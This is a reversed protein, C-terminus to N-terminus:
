SNIWPLASGVTDTYLSLHWSNVLKQKIIYIGLDPLLAFWIIIVQWNLGYFSIDKKMKHKQVTSFDFLYTKIAKINALWLIFNVLWPKIAM